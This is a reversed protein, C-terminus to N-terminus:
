GPKGRIGHASLGVPGTQPGDTGTGKRGPFIGRGRVSFPLVPDYVTSQGPRIDFSQRFCPADSKMRGSLCFGFGRRSIPRTYSLHLPAKLDYDLIALRLGCGLPYVIMRGRGKDRPIDLCVGSAASAQSPSMTLTEM